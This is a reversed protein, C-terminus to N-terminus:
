RRAGEARTAACRRRLMQLDLAAALDDHQAPVDEVGAGYPMRIRASTLIGDGVLVHKQQVLFADMSTSAAVIFPLLGAHVRRAEDVRGQAVLVAIAAFVDVFAPGPMTATAGAVLEDVVHTGGLGGLVLADPGTERRLRAIKGVPDPPEVKVGALGSTGALLEALAPVPLDVGTHQPADQLLVPVGADAIATIASGLEDLPVRGWGTPRVLVLEAGSAAAREAAAVAAPVSTLEVNGIVRLSGSVVRTVASIEDPTLRDAESGYGVAAWGCGQGSLLDTQRELAAADVAGADTYPTVVVPVVAGLDAATVSRRGSM